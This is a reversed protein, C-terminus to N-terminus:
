IHILSLCLEFGLVTESMKVLYGQNSLLNGIGNFGFEPMYVSGANNKAIIIKDSIPSLLALIDSENVCSYGIMNWGSLLDLTIPLNADEIEQYVNNISYCPDQEQAFLTLPVFLLIYLLKKM